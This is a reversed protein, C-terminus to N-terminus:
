QSEGIETYVEYCGITMIDVIRGQLFKNDALIHSSSQPKVYLTIETIDNETVLDASIDLTNQTTGSGNGELNVLTTIIPVTKVENDYTSLLTLLFSANLTYASTADGHNLGNVCCLLVPKNEKINGYVTYKAVYSESEPDYSWQNRRSLTGHTIGLTTKGEYVNNQREGAVIKKNFGRGFRTSSSPESNALYTENNSAILKNGIIDVATTNGIQIPTESNSTTIFYNNEITADYCFTAAIVISHIINFEFYNDKITLGLTGRNFQLPAQQSFGEITCGSILCKYMHRNIVIAAGTGNEFQSNSFIGDWLEATRFFNSGTKFVRCNIVRPSQVFNENNADANDIISSQYFCCDVFVPNIYNVKISNDYISGNNNGYFECEMFSPCFSFSSNEIGRILPISDHVFRAGKIIVSSFSNYYDNGSLQYTKTVNIEHNCVITCYFGHEKAYDLANFLRDIPTEGEFNDINYITLPAKTDINELAKDLRLDDTVKIDVAEAVPFKGNNKPKITGIVNVPM